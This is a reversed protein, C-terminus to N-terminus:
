AIVRLRPRVQKTKALIPMATREDCLAAHERMHAALRRAVSVNHLVATPDVRGDRIRAAFEDRDGRKTRAPFFIIQEYRDLSHFAIVADDIYTM